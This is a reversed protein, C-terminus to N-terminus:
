RKLAVVEQLIEDATTIIRANAQFGRQAVIMNAFETPLDVNSSELFGGMVKGIGGSAPTSVQATGSNGSEALLNNGIKTLGGPNTFGALSIQALAQTQGNTFVGSIIGDSGITFTSLTGLPLGDQSVTSMTNQGALQTISDFDLNIALPNAGNQLNIQVGGTYTPNKGTGDFSVTGSGAQVGAESVSWNWDSNLANFAPIGSGTMGSINFTVQCGSTSTVNLVSVTGTTISANIASGGAAGSILTSLGSLTTGSPVSIDYSSESSTGAGLIVKLTGSGVLSTPDAYQQTSMVNQQKVLNLSLTHSQGLSDYVLASVTRSQGPDTSMDLNGGFAVKSTPRTLQSTPLTIGMTTDIPVSTDIAGTFPDAVWGLVKYGLASSVLSGAQDVMFSGDRTFYKAAGDTVSFFGNGDVAMDTLKGTPQLSGQTQNIDISSVAVGTGLQMPNTGGVGGSKPTSAGKMMQSFAEQFSMKESKYGVTNVNAINNGIVDMLAKHARLGSVGSYMAQIM